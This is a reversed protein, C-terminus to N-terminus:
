LNWVIFDFTSLQRWISYCDTCFVSFYRTHKFLTIHTFHVEGESSRNRGFLLLFPPFLSAFPITLPISSSIFRLPQQQMCVYTCTTGRSNVPWIFPQSLRVGSAPFPSTSSLSLIGRASVSASAALSETRPLRRTNDTRAVQPGGVEFWSGACAEVENGASWGGSGLRARRRRRKSGSRESFCRRQYSKLCQQNNERKKKGARNGRKNEKEEEEEKEEKRSWHRSITLISLWTHQVKPGSLTSKCKRPSIDPYNNYEFENFRSIFLIKTQKLHKFRSM